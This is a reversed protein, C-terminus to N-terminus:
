LSWLLDMPSETVDGWKWAPSLTGCRHGLPGGAQRPHQLLASVIVDRHAHSPFHKVSCVLAEESRLMRVLCSCPSTGKVVLHRSIGGCSPM